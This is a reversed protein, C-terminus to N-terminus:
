IQIDTLAEILVKLEGKAEESFHLEKDHLERASEQLNQAHDGIREFDNICHLLRSVERGDEASVGQQSIEV